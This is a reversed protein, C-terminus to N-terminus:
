FRIEITDQRPERSPRLGNFTQMREPQQEGVRIRYSSDKFVHPRFRNGRIRIAYIMKGTLEDMVQVVPHQMGTVKLEPLYGYPTRAYNDLQEITRPWGEYQKAAPNTPDAFRPWCEAVITRAAKNMRVIGYGPMGNHLKAPAHGMNVGPNTAAHVHVRNGFGDRRAGTFQERTPREYRGFNEPAFARPYFNAISPVCFSWVADDSEVVGHHTLTALHQDGCLHFAFGKRLSRLAKNRGTQPWGNSDLDALLRTLAGGHHTALNAFTTQSLALKMDAGRWDGSWSELFNLQQNGLLAVGPIDLDRTDFEPDNFHDPRGTKSPPMDPRACGSKFKRDEVVAISIRGYTVSTHAMGIGQEITGAHFPPPLNATQTREVMKVFRAPRVYGGDHDRGPSKRGGQGWINGQYVDHDDPLCITPIERTLHRYAWCWLYWKYLYDHEINKMDAFTPSAGEYVQDGSFFLLDPRHAAVHRSIDSHPFWMGQVWDTRGGVKMGHANNHNGTFGAIVIEPKDVPDRRITGTWTGSFTQPPEVGEAPQGYVIRFPTDRTANWNNVRLTATYGPRVLRATALTQWGADSERQLTVTDHAPDAPEPVPTLQATLTLIGRNLTYQSSVIPGFKDEPHAAVKKGSLHLNDFWYRTGGAGPHSVLAVNGILRNGPFRRTMRVVTVADTGTEARLTIRYTQNSEEVVQINVHLQRAQTADSFGPIKEATEDADPQPRESSTAETDRIFLKGTGDVGVFLGSGRGMWQHVISAARYDMTGHGVGLLVGVSADPAVATDGLIGTDFDISFSGGTDALRHSLLHVTRMPLRRQQAVCELRGNAVRWDHLRNAWFAPGIWIREPGDWRAKWEAAGLCNALLLCSAAMRLVCQKRRM